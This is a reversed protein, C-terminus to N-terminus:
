LSSLREKVRTSVMGGMDLGQHSQRLEAIVKGMDKISAAGVREIAQSILDDLAKEELPAPLYDRIVVEAQCEKEMLDDRGAQRYQAVAEDSQKIMKNLIKYIDANELDVRRDVEVQKIEALIMRIVSLRPKDQARLALKMDEQLRRKLTSEM